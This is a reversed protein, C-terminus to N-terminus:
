GYNSLRAGVPLAKKFRDWEVEAHRMAQDKLFDRYGPFVAYENTELLADLKAALENMTMSKGRIAKSEAYLLFQECLIHLIYVEERALYNKAIKSEAKTPRESKTAMIGMNHKAADARDLILQSATKGTIAYLFKDQLKAYFSRVAPADKDYDTSALKFCDRVAEYISIEESRLARVEAALKRLATPDAGLRGSNLAYGDAIYRKLVSNAWKRFDAAKSGNVRYGVTLIVDLNYHDTERSVSRGGEIRVREMKSVTAAQDLEGSDYIASVHKSIAPVQVGFLEAMQKQTAWVTDKSWDVNFDIASPGEDFRMLEMEIQRSAEQAAAAARRNRQLFKDIDVAGQPERNVNQTM